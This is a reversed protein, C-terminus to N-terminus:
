ILVQSFIRGAVTLKSPATGSLIVPGPPPNGPDASLVNLTNINITGGLVNAGVDLYRATKFNNGGAVVIRRSNGRAMRVLDATGDAAFDTVVKGGTGFTTDIKGDRTLAALAFKGNTTGALVLGGSTSVIVDGGKDVGGFDIKAVGNGDAGFSNDISGNTNHRALIMTMDLAAPANTDLSVTGSLANGALVTKGNPQIVVGNIRVSSFGPIKGIFSGDRDFTNDLAGEGTLRVVAYEPGFRHGALIIKGFNPNIGPVGTYDIAVARATENAGLGIIRKGDGDFTPDLSGDLPNLRAVAFDFDGGNKDGGVVVIKGDAQVTVDEAQSQDKIRITRKGDGDFSKDLLGTSLLRAVAFQSGSSTSATGAVIINGLLDTALSSASADGRDGVGFTISGNRSPGFTTDLTGNLNFRAVAFRNIRAGNSITFTVTGAVVTKGDSQVAVDAAVGPAGGFNVTAKGDLSFTPDLAGAAFMQRSELTELVCRRLASSKRCAKM